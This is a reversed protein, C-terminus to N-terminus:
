ENDVEVAHACYSCLMESTPYNWWDEEIPEGCRDCVAVKRTRNRGCGHCDPCGNCDNIFEYAM